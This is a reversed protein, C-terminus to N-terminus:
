HSHHEEPKFLRDCIDCYDAPELPEGRRTCKEQKCVNRGSKFEEESVGKM